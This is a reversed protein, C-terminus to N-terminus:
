KFIAVPVVVAAPWRLSTDEGLSEDIQAPTLGLDGILAPPLLPRGLTFTNYSVLDRYCVDSARALRNGPRPHLVRVVKGFVTSEGGSFLSQEGALQSFQVPVIVRANERPAAGAGCGASPPNDKARRAGINFVIRPDRGVARAYRASAALVARGPNRTLPQSGFRRIVNYPQAYPPLLVRADTIEVFDGERLGLVGRRFTAVDTAADLTRLRVPSQVDADGLRDVLKLLTSTTTPTVERDVFAQSQGGVGIQVPSGAGASVTGTRSTTIQQRESNSLGGQIQSLYAQARVNDLYLFEAPVERSTFAFRDPTGNDGRFALYGILVGAGVLAVAMLALGWKAWAGGLRRMQARAWGADPAPETGPM